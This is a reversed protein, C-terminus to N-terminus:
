TFTSCLSMLFLTISRSIIVKIKKECFAAHYAWPHDSFSYIYSSFFLFIYELINKVQKQFDSIKLEKKLKEMKQDGFEHKNM